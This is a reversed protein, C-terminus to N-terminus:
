CGKLMHNLVNVISETKKAEVVPVQHDGLLDGGCGGPYDKDVLLLKIGDLKEEFIETLQEIINKEMDSQTSVGSVTEMRTVVVVEKGNLITKYGDLIRVTMKGDDILKQHPAESLLGFEKLQSLALQNAGVACVSIELLELETIIYVQCGKIEEVRYNKIRFGISVARMTKNKYAIWYQKGLDLEVDFQLTMTVRKNVLRATDTLWPGISPVTGCALRHQHSILCVPNSAFENKRHIADYVAQAEIIEGDRDIVESSVIFNIRHNVEDIADKEDLIYATTYKIEKTNINM